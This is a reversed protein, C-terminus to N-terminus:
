QMQRAGGTKDNDLEYKRVTEHYYLYHEWMDIM